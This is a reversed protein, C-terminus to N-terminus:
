VKIKRQIAKRFGPLAAFTDNIRVVKFNKDIIVVGDTIHQFVQNLEELEFRATKESEKIPLVENELKRIREQLSKNGTESM